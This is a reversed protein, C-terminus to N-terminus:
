FLYRLALFGTVPNRQALNDKYPWLNALSLDLSLREVPSWSLHPSLALVAPVPVLAPEPVPGALITAGKVPSAYFLRLDAAWNSWGYGITANVKHVPESSQLLPVTQQGTEPTHPDVREFSYNFGWNPGEVSKHDIQFQVGETVVGTGNAYYQVVCARYSAPNLPQCGPLAPSPIFEYPTSFISITQENYLSIRATADIPALQRDWGIREEYVASPSLRPNGIFYTGGFQPQFMALQGFDLLSPLSLGRAFSARLTDKEDLRYNLESNVSTGQVSRDFDHDTYIDGPLGAGKRGLQFRDYRVANVISLNPLFQHEWVLSAGIQGGRLTGSSFNVVNMSEERGELAIRFSDGAGIKFLDYIQGDFDQDHLRFSGVTENSAEPVHYFTGSAVAGLHGIVTDAGYDAKLSSTQLRADFFQASGSVVSRQSIDSYTAELGARDGNPLIASLNIAAIKRDPNIPTAMSYPSEVAGEDHAHNDAATVRLGIGPALTQTISASIDRRADNGVRATVSNVPDEAPDFTIINIVGDVANFGYLASQPGRIVEIQRIEDLEVPLSSWFVEGFAGVYIQRGNLLVMVRAGLVQNYGGMTVEETGPSGTFVDVGPLRKLLTPLNRAGSRRIDDATIVDMTVPTESIREPKGTASLTVPEGFMGEFRNYDLSQGVARPPAAISLLTLIALPAYRHM